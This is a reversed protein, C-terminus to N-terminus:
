NQDNFLQVKKQCKECMGLHSIIRQTEPDNKKALGSIVEILSEDNPCKRQQFWVKLIGYASSIIVIIIIILIIDM